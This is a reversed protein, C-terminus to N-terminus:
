RNDVFGDAIVADVDLAAPDLQGLERGAAIVEDLAARDIQLGLGNSAQELVSVAVQEPINARRAYAPAARAPDNAIVDMARRQARLFADLVEPSDDIFSQTAWHTTDTWSTVYESSDFLVRAEGRNILIESTPPFSWSVDALGQTTATWSETTGGVHLIEVDRGPTLGVERAIRNAFYTTISGPRSVAIRKNRLDEISRLPSDAPVLFVARSRNDCGAVLRLERQGKQYATFAPLTAPMGMGMTAVGRVTDTGGPFSVLELKLGEQQYIGLESAVLFPTASINTDLHSVAVEGEYSVAGDAGEQDNGCGAVGGLVVMGGFARLLQRRNLQQQQSHM